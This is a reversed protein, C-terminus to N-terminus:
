AVRETLCSYHPTVPLSVPYSCFRPPPMVTLNFSWRGRENVFSAEEIDGPFHPGKITGLFIRDGGGIAM